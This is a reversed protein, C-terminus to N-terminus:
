FMNVVLLSIFLFYTNIFFHFFMIFFQTSNAGYSVAADFLTGCDFAISRNRLVVCSWHGGLAVGVIEEDGVILSKTTTVLGSM